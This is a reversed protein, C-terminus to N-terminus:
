SAPFPLVPIRSVGKYSLKVYARRVSDDLTSKALAAATAHKVIRKRALDSSAPNTRDGSVTLKSLREASSAIDVLSPTLQRKGAVETVEGRDTIYSSSSRSSTSSGDWASPGRASYRRGGTGGGSSRGGSRNTRAQNSGQRREPGGGTGSAGGTSGGGNGGGRRNHHGGGGGNEGNGGTQGGGGRSSDDGRNRDGQNRSGGRRQETARRGELAKKPTPWLVPDPANDLALRSVKVFALTPARRMQAFASNNDLRAWVAGVSLNEARFSSQRQSALFVTAAAVVAEALDVSFEARPSTSMYQVSGSM